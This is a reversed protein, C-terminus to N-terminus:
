HEKHVPPNPNDDADQYRQPPLQYMQSYVQQLRPDDLKKLRDEVSSAEYKQEKFRMADRYLTKQLETPEPYLKDYYNWKKRLQILEYSAMSVAGVFTVMKFGRVRKYMDVSCAHNCLSLQWLQMAFPLAMLTSVKASTRMHEADKMFDKDKVADESTHYFRLWNAEHM